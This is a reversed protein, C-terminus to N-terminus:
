LAQCFCSLSLPNMHSLKLTQDMLAPDTLILRDAPSDMARSPSASLRGEQKSEAQPWGMPHHQGCKPHM